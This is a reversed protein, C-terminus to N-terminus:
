AEPKNRQVMYNYLNYTMTSSGFLVLLIALIKNPILFGALILIPGFIFVDALRIWQSKSGRTTLLGLLLGLLLVLILVLRFSDSLM